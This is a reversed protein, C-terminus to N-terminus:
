FFVGRLCFLRCFSQSFHKRVPYQGVIRALCIECHQHYCRGASFIEIRRRSIQFQIDTVALRDAVHVCVSLRLRARVFFSCKGACVPDALNRFRNVFVASFDNRIDVKRKCPFDSIYLPIRICKQCSKISIRIRRQIHDEPTEGRDSFQRECKRFAVLHQRHICVADTDTRVIHRSIVFILIHRICHFVLVSFRISVPIRCAIVIFNSKPCANRILSHSLFQRSVSLYFCPCIHSTHTM